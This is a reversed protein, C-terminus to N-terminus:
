AGINYKASRRAIAEQRARENALEQERQFNTQQTVLDALLAAQQKQLAQLQTMYNEQFDGQEEAYLGSNILGRSAYENELDKLQQVRDREMGAQTDEFQTTAEGKRRGLESLYDALTRKSGRLTDQYISDTGLYAAISPVVPKAAPKSSGTTGSNGSRGTTRGGGSYGKGGGGKSSGGGTSKPKTSTKPKSGLGSKSKTSSGATTAAKKAAGGIITGISKAPGGGGLDALAM